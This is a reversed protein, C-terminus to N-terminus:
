YFTILEPINTKIFNKRKELVEIAKFQNDNLKIIGVHGKTLIFAINSCQLAM